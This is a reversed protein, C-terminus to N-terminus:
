EDMKRYPGAVGSGAQIGVHIEKAEAHCVEEPM